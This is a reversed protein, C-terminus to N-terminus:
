YTGKAAGAIARDRAAAASAYVSSHSQPTMIPAKGLLDQGKQEFAQKAEGKARLRLLARGFVNNPVSPAATQARSLSENIDGLTNVLGRDAARRTQSGVPAPVFNSFNNV